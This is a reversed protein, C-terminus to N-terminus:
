LLRFKKLLKEVTAIFCNGSRSMIHQSCEPLFKQRKLFFIPLMKFRLRRIANFPFM